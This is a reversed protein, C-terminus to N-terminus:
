ARKMVRGLAKQQKGLERKAAAMLKEDARIEESRVLTRAADEIEYQRDTKPSVATPSSSKSKKKGGSKKKKAM